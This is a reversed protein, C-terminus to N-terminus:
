AATCSASVSGSVETNLRRLNWAQRSCSHCRKTRWPWGVPRSINSRSWKLRMLSLRPWATPSWTSTATVAQRPATSRSSSQRVRQPPSSNMTSNGSVPGSARNRSAWRSCARTGSAQGCSGQRSVALKATAPMCGPLADLRQQPAEVLARGRWPVARSCRASSSSSRWMGLHGGHPGYSREVLERRGDAHVILATSARTGYTRTAIFVPSLMRETNLGVGTDPLIADPAAEPDHMLNLLTDTNVQELCEALAAKAREVKPWPTDLDANSLRLHRRGAKEAAAAPNLFCLERADGVLLNFGAYDGARRQADALFEGPGMEGSLFQM